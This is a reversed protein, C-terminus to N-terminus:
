DIGSATTVRGFNTSNINTNFGNVYDDFIPTNLADIMDVRFEFNATETFRFRKIINFDFRFSGPGLLPAQSLSGLNGALPNVLVLNGSSDTIARLTSLQALAPTINGLSPDNVQNYGTNFVVGNETKQVKVFDRPLNGAQTPTNDGGFFNFTNIPATFSIPSGAFQNYIVGVQWLEVLRAM